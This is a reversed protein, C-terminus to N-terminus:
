RDRAAALRKTAWPLPFIMLMAEISENWPPIRTGPYVALLCATAPSVFAKALSNATWPTFTLAMAGPYMAVWLVACVGGSRGPSFAMRAGVGGPRQPVGAS